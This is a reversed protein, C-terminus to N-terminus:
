SILVTYVTYQIREQQKRLANNVNDIKTTKRIKYTKRKQKKM